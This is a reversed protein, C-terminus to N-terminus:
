SGGGVWRDTYECFGKTDIQELVKGGGPNGPDVERLTGTFHCGQEFVILPYKWLVSTDTVQWSLQLEYQGTGDVAQFDVHKPYSWFVRWHDWDSQKSQFNDQPFFIDKDGLKLYATSKQFAAHFGIDFATHHDDTSFQAWSWIREPLMWMGWDHDHYGKADTLEYDKGEVSVKGTVKAAPMYVLWSSIEWASYGPVDNALLQSRGTRNFTLDFKIKGDSSAAVVHYTDDDLVTVSSGKISVNACDQEASFHTVHYFEIDTDVQGEPTFAAFNLSATGLDLENGPNCVAFTVMATLGSAPDTFNYYWWEVYFLKHSHDKYAAFHFGDDKATIDCGSKIPGAHRIPGPVTAESARAMLASRLQKILHAPTDTM